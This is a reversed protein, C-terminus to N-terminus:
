EKSSSSNGAQCSASYFLKAMQIAFTVDAFKLGKRIDKADYLRTGREEGAYPACKAAAEAFLAVAQKNTITMVNYVPVSDLADLIEDCTLACFDFEIETVDQSHARIPFVLERKGRGLERLAEAPDMKKEEEKKEEPEAQQGDLLEDAKKETDTGTM